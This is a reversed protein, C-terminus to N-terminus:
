LAVGGGGTGGRRTNAFRDVESVRSRRILDRVCQRLMTAIAEGSEAALIHLQAYEHQTLRFHLDRLGSQKRKSASESM